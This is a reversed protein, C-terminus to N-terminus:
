RSKPIHNEEEDKVSNQLQKFDRRRRKKFTILIKNDLKQLQRM